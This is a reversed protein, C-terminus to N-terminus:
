CEKLHAIINIADNVWIKTNFCFLDIHENCYVVQILNEKSNEFVDNQTWRKFFLETPVFLPNIVSVCNKNEFKNQAIDRYKSIVRKWVCSVHISNNITSYKEIWLFSKKWLIINHPWEMDFKWDITYRNCPLYWSLQVLQLHRLNPLIM